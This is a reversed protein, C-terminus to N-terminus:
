KDFDFHFVFITCLQKHANTYITSGHNHVTFLSCHVCLLNVCTNYENNENKNKPIIDDYKMRSKMADCMLAKM